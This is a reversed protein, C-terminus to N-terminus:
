DAQNRNRVAAVALRFQEGRDFEDRFLGFSACGPSLLVVDGDGSVARCAEVADPMSSFLGLQQKGREDLLAKLMPTATGDLLAVSTASRAIADALPRLDTRKDAGGAIIHVRKGRQAGLAAIVAAPATASTDNIFQVGDITDVLESRDRIGRFARLGREVSLQDAGLVVAAAVAAAVNRQLPEGRFFPQDPIEAEGHGDPLRWIVRDHSVTVGQEVQRSSFPVVRAQTSGTATWSGPDDANVVFIDEPLLHRAISRKMEAYQEYSDYTDLHDESINTLVAIHPGLRHEELGELQWNSIELVVPTDPGIDPLLAVASVGMNGAVVTDIRWQRLIEGCLASTTSKGKTGTIGIVPARCLRLFLSMEMEVPVGSKRAIALWPSWGRVAPNRIVMDAGASTFDSEDHGSLVYRIPLGALETLPERLEEETKGDTVTVTAGQGALFKAVGVGGGRSGLGMVTIRKGALEM